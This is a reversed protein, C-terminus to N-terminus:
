VHKGTEEQVSRSGAELLVLCRTDASAFMRSATTGSTAAWEANAFLHSAGKGSTARGGQGERGRRVQLGSVEDSKNALEKRFLSAAQKM